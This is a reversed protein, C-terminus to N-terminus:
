PPSSSILLIFTSNLQSHKLMHLFCPCNFNVFNMWRLSVVPSKILRLHRKSTKGECLSIACFSFSLLGYIIVIIISQKFGRRQFLLFINFLYFYGYFREILFHQIFIKKTFKAVLFAVLQVCFPQILVPCFPALFFHLSIKVVTDNFTLQFRSILIFNQFLIFIAFVQKLRAGSNFSFINYNATAMLDYLNACDM